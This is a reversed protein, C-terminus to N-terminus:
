CQVKEGDVVEDYAAQPRYLLRKVLIIFVGTLLLNLMLSLLAVTVLPGGLGYSSAVVLLGATLLGSFAWVKKM